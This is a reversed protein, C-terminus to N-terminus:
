IPSCSFMFDDETWSGSGSCFFRTPGSGTCYSCITRSTQCRGGAKPASDPCARPNETPDACVWQNCGDGAQCVCCLSLTQCTDDPTACTTASPDRPKCANSVSGDVSVSGDAGSDETSADAPNSGDISQASDSLEAADQASADEGQQSGDSQKSADLSSADQNTAADTTDASDDSSCSIVALALATAMPM